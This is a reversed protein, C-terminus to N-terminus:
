CRNMQINMQWKLIEKLGLKSDKINFVDNKRVMQAGGFLRLELDKKICGYGLCARHIIVYYYRIIISM